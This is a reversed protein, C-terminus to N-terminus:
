DCIVGTDECRSCPCGRSGKDGCEMCAGSNSNSEESDQENNSVPEVVVAVHEERGHSPPVSMARERATSAVSCGIENFWHMMRTSCCSHRCRELCHSGCVCCPWACAVSNALAIFRRCRTLCSALVSARSGRQIRSSLNSKARKKTISPVNDVQHAKARRNPQKCVPPKCKHHLQKRSPPFM